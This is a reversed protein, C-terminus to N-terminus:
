TSKAALVLPSLELLTNHYEFELEIFEGNVGLEIQSNHYQFESEM